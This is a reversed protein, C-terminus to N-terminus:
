TLSVLPVSSKIPMLSRNGQLGLFSITQDVAPLSTGYGGLSSSEIEARSRTEYRSWITQTSGGSTYWQGGSEPSSWQLGLSSVGATQDRKVPQHGAAMGCPEYKLSM